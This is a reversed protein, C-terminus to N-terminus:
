KADIHVANLPVLCPAPPILRINRVTAVSKRGHNARQECLMPM